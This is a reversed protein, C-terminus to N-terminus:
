LALANKLIKPHEKYIRYDNLSSVFVSFCTLTFVFPDKHAQPALLVTLVISSIRTILRMWIGVNDEFNEASKALCNTKKAIFTLARITVGFSISRIVLPTFNNKKYFAQYLLGLALRQVINDLCRFFKSKETEARTITSSFFSGYIISSCSNFFLFDM